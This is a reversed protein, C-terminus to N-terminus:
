MHSTFVMHTTEVSYTEEAPPGNEFLVREIHSNTKTKKFLQCTDGIYHMLSSYKESFQPDKLYEFRLM